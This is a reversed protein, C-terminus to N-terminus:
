GAAKLRAPVTSDESPVHAALPPYGGWTSRLGATAHADELTIPVGHLPGWVERRALAADAAQARQRASAEDLTVIANLSPNPQAIQALYAELVEFASVQGQRIVTALEHATSFNVENM